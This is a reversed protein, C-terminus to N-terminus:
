LISFIIIVQGTYSVFDQQGPRAGQSVSTARGPVTSCTVISYQFYCISLYIDYGQSVTNMYIMAYIGTDCAILRWTNIFVFAM